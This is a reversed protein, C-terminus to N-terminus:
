KTLVYYGSLTVLVDDDSTKGNIFKGANTRINIPTVIFSDNKTAEVMFISKSIVLSSADDSEYVDITAATSASVNKNAQIVLGTIVFFQNQKPPVFSYATDAVDLNQFYATSYDYASTRLEGFDTVGVKVNNQPDVLHFIGGM